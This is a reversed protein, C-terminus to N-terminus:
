ILISLKVAQTINTIKLNSIALTPMDTNVKM